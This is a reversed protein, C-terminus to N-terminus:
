IIKEISYAVQSWRHRANAISTTGASAVNVQHIEKVCCM